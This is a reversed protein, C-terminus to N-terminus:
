ASTVAEMAWLAEISMNAREIEDRPIAVLWSVVAPPVRPKRHSQPALLGFRQLPRAPGDPALRTSGAAPTAAPAPSGCLRGGGAPAVGVSSSIGESRSAALPSNPILCM